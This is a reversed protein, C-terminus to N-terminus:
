GMGCFYTIQFLLTYFITHPFLIFLICSRLFSVCCVYRLLNHELQQRQEEWKVLVQIHRGLVAEDEPSLVQHNAMSKVYQKMTDRGTEMVNATLKGKKASNHLRIPDSDSHFQNGERSVAFTAESKDEDSLQAFVTARDAIEQTGTEEIETVDNLLRAIKDTTRTREELTPLSNPNAKMTEPEEPLRGILKEVDYRKHRPMFQRSPSQQRVPEFALDRNETAVVRIRKTAFLPESRQFANRPPISFIRFSSFADVTANNMAVAATALFLPTLILKRRPHRVRCITRGNDQSVLIVPQQTGKEM